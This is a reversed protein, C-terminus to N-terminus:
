KKRLIRKLALVDQDDVAKKEGDRNLSEKNQLLDRTDIVRVRFDDIKRLVSNKFVSDVDVGKSFNIIDVADPEMGFTFVQEKTLDDVSIDDTALKLEKFAKLIKAANEATPMVLLDMDSTTRRVGHLIAAHGGILVFDVKHKIFKRILREHTRSFFTM